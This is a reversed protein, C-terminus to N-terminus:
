KAREAELRALTEELKREARDLSELTKAQLENFVPLFAALEAAEEETGLDYAQAARRMYDGTSRGLAKARAEIGAKEAPSMLVVVRETAAMSVEEIRHVPICM